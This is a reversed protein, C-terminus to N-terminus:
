GGEKRFNGDSTLGQERKYTQKAFIKKRMQPTNIRKLEKLAEVEMDIAERYCFAALTVLVGGVEQPTKGVKRSYVYTVVRSIEEQTIGQAQALELAEELFRIVRELTDVAIVEGFTSLMWDGVDRQFKSLKGLFKSLKGIDTPPTNVM